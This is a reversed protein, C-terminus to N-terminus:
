IYYLLFDAIMRQKDTQGDLHDFFQRFVTILFEFNRTKGSMNSQFGSYDIRESIVKKM